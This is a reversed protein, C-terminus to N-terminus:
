RIGISPKHSLRIYVALNCLVALLPVVSAFLVRHVYTTRKM